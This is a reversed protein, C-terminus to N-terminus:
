RAPPSAGTTSSSGRRSRRPSRPRSMSCPPVDTRVGWNILAVGIVIGSVVGVTALGLALDGGEPFDLEELTGALGAATGHGGEFGIEILAGAMPNMGFLPTLVIVALLLGVVYQGAGLTVGFSLQPGALEWIKRWGPLAIGLFLTAFVVNILLEPLASWVELVPEPLLGGALPHEEGARRQVVAGLVSPGILLGIVGAIISSPLFLRQSLGSKIRVVKGALLLVGLGLLSMGVMEASM